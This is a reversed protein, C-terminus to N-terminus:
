KEKKILKEAQESIKVLDEIDYGTGQCSPCDWIERNGWCDHEDVKKEGHCHTCEKIM